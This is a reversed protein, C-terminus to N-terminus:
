RSLPCGFSRSGYVVVEIGFGLALILTGSDRIESSELWKYMRRYPVIWRTKYLVIRIIYGPIIAFTRAQIVM